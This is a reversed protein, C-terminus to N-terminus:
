IDNKLGNNKNRLEKKIDILYDKQNKFIEKLYKHLKKLTKIENYLKKSDKYIMKYKSDIEQENFLSYKNEILPLEINSIEFDKNKVFRNILRLDSNINSEIVKIKNILKNYKIILQNYIYLINNNLNHNLKLNFKKDFKNLKRLSLNNNKNYENALTKKDM